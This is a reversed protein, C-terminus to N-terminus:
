TQFVPRSLFRTADRWLRVPLPPAFEVMLDLRSGPRGEYIAAGQNIRLPASVSVIRMGPPPEIRLHLTTPRVTVQNAFTMRYVGGSSNGEWATPDAWSFEFTHEKGSRIPVYRQEYRVGLDTKSGVTRLPGDGARREVPVCDTGCYANVLAVSEGAQVHQLVSGADESRAPGIVYGPQGSTPADNRLMVDLDAVGFGDSQLDIAYRLDRDQYFDVKSGAASNVVVSLLDGESGPPRLAGGVPTARLGEQMSPDTSFMLIHRSAAAEVFQELDLHDAAEQSVFREFVARAVDGLIRKRRAPDTFVAFAENTTFPVVNDAGIEIDYGPIGVPGTAQLLAAEAFPDALIVGDLRDGTVAEYSSLIAQGVTPMDPMVNISTWFRGGVRFQDYNARFDDNPSPVSQVPPPTLDHIPLFPTFHFRGDNTTLISYAGILGGTGRLEAPDQAGFFYRQRGEAGLFRPLGQLLLHTAHVSRGLEDLRAQADLRAPGVPGLLLSTPAEDLRTVARTMLTDAEGAARILPPFRDLPVRGDTPALGSLGGPIDAAADALVIVADTADVASGSVATVADTTRGVIPLWGAVRYLVGDTRGAARAFSERAGRLSAAAAVADGALLQSRGHEAASRGRALDDRVHRLSALLSLGLLGVIAAVLLFGGLIFRLRRKRRPRAPPGPAADSEPSSEIDHTDSRM